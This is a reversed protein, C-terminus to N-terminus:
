FQYEQNQEFHNDGMSYLIKNLRSTIVKFGRDAESMITDPNFSFKQKGGTIRM